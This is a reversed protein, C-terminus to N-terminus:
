HDNRACGNAAYSASSGDSRPLELTLVLGDAAAEAGTLRVGRPLGPLKVTRPALRHALGAAAPSAALGDVPFVQGLVAVEAPTVTLSDGTTGLRTSVTVPLPIGALTGTLMLGGAGDSGPALGAAASGLRKRLEGYAITATASGGSTAGKTTVDHLDAAVTMSTGDRRVDDASIHVTGVDGTLLRLGALAGSLDASVPGAPELRCVAAHVIRQRATYELVVDAVAATAVAAVVVGTAVLLGTRRRKPRGAPGSGSATADPSDAAAPAADTPGPDAAGSGALRDGLPDRGTSRSTTPRFKM